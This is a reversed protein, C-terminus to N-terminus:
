PSALAATGRERVQVALNSAEAMAEKMAHAQALAADVKEKALERHKQRFERLAPTLLNMILGEEELRSNARGLQHSHEGPAWSQRM